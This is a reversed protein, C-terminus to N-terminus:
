KEDDAWLNGWEGRHRNSLIESGEGGEVGINPASAAMMSIVAVEIAEASPKIYEKKNM